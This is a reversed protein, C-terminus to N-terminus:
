HFPCSLSVITFPLSHFSALFRLDGEELGRRWWFEILDSCGITGTKERLEMAAVRGLEDL